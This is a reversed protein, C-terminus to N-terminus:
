AAPLFTNTKMQSLAEQCMELSILSPECGVISFDFVTAFSHPDYTAKQGLLARPKVRYFGLPYMGLAFYDLRVAIQECSVLEGLSNAQDEIKRMVLM